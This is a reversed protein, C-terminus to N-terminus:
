HSRAPHFGVTKAILAVWEPTQPLFTSSELVVDLRSREVGILGVGEGRCVLKIKPNRAIVYKPLAVYCRNAFRRYSKAQLLADKWRLLKAEIAIVHLNKPIVGMNVKFYEPSEKMLIGHKQLRSLATSTRSPTSYLHRAVLFSSLRHKARLFAALVQSDLDTLSICKGSRQPCRSGWSMVVLDPIVMGVEIEPFIKLRRRMSAAPRLTTPGRSTLVRVIETELRFGNPRM